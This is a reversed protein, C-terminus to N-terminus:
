KIVTLTLSKVTVRSFRCLKVMRLMERAEKEQKVTGWEVGNWKVQHGEKIVCMVTARAVAQKQFIEETGTGFRVRCIEESRGKSAIKKSFSQRVVRNLVPDRLVKNRNHSDDYLVNCM